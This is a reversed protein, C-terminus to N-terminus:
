IALNSRKSAQPKEKDKTKICSLCIMLVFPLVIYLWFTSDLNNLNYRDHVIMENLHVAVNGWLWLTIAFVTAKRFGHSAFFSFIALLGFSVNATGVLFQFPSIHWKLAKAIVDSYFGYMCATYLLVVGVPLLILWRYLIASLTSRKLFLQLFWEIVTLILAIILMSLAFNQLGIALWEYYM